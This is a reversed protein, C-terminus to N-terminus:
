GAGSEGAQYPSAGDKAVLGEYGRELVQQWAKPGDPVLRRVALIVTTNGRIERELALRRDRLPSSRLDRGRSWLCDFAIFMPPTALEGTEEHLLHFRSALKEDFRAIEGDLILTPAPLRRVAEAIEPFRAAHDRDTRSVLSIRWGDV